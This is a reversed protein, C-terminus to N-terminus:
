PLDGSNDMKKVIRAPVGALLSNEPYKGPLIVAGAAVVSGSAIQAGGPITSTCGSWTGAGIKINDARGIGARINSNGIEHSGCELLVDPGIHVDSEISVISKEPVIIILDLGLWCAEGITLSGQGWVKVGSNICANREVAVDMWRWLLRKLSFARTPPLIAEIQNRLYRKVSIMPLKTGANLELM